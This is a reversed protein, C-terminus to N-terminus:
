AKNKAAAKRMEEIPIISASVIFILLLDFPPLSTTRFVKQAVPLYVIVLQLVVGVVFSLVLKRNSFLSGTFITNHLSRLNFSHFLQFFIITCFAVTRATDIGSGKSLEWIFLALTGAAIVMGDFFLHPLVQAGLIEEDKGRPRRRM